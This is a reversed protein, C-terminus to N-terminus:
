IEAATKYLQIINQQLATGALIVQSKARNGQTNEM